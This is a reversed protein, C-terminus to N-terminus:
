ISLFLFFFKTATAGLSFYPGLRKRQATIVLNQGRELVLDSGEDMAIDDLTGITNAYRILKTAPEVLLSRLTATKM